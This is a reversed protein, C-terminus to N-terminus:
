MGHNVVDPAALSTSAAQLSNKHPPYIVPKKKAMVKKKLTMGRYLYIDNRVDEVSWPSSPVGWLYPPMWVVGRWLVLVYAPQVDRLVHPSHCLGGRGRPLLPPSHRLGAGQEGGGQGVAVASLVFPQTQRRDAAALPMGADGDGPVPVVQCLVAGRLVQSWRMVLLQAV